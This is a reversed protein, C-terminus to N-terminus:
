SPQLFSRKLGNLMKQVKCVKETLLSSQEDTIYNFNFSLLLQTELEFASGLAISLFQNFEKESNRGAGEAINSPISISCRNMQSILGYKEESPFSRTLIFIEKALSMAEQWVKLEKFNHM